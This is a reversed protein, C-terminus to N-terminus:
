SLKTTCIKDLTSVGQKVSQSPRTQFRLLHIRDAQCFQLHGCFQPSGKRIEFGSTIRSKGTNGVLWIQRTLLAPNERIYFRRIAPKLRHTYERMSRPPVYGSNRHHLHPHLKKADRPHAPRSATCQPIPTNHFIRAQNLRMVILPLASPYSLTCATRSGM